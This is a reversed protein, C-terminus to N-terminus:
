PIVPRSLAAQIVEEPVRAQKWELLDEASMPRTLSRQNVFQALLETGFGQEMLKVLESLLTPPDISKAADAGTQHGAWARQVDPDALLATYAEKLADSLVETSNEASRKRGYRRANGFGNSIAMVNSREDELTAAVRVEAVYFSGIPQDHESTWFHRLSVRLVMPADPDIIVDWGASVQELVSLAFAEVDSTTRWAFPKKDDGTGEGIVQKDAVDRGDELSLRLARTTLEPPLTLNTSSIAEQPVFRLELTRDKEAATLSGSALAVLMLLSSWRRM